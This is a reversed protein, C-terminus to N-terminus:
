LSYDHMDCSKYQGTEMAVHEFDISWVRVCGDTSGTISLGEHLALSTIAVGGPIDPFLQWVRKVIFSHYEVEVICGTSTSSYSYLSYYYICVCM